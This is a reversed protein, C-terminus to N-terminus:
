RMLLRHVSLNQLNVLNVAKSNRMLLFPFSQYNFNPLPLLDTCQTEDSLPCDVKILTRRVKDVVAVWPVGWCGVAFRNPSVEYLQTILHDSLLFDPSKIFKKMRADYSAFFLGGSCALAYDDQSTRIVKYIASAVKNEAIKTMAGDKITVMALQGGQQGCVINFANMACISFIHRSLGIHGLMSFDDEIDVLYLKSTSGIVLHKGLQLSCQMM